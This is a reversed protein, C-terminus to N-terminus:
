EDTKESLEKMHRLNRPMTKVIRGGNRPQDISWQKHKVKRVGGRPPEPPLEESLVIDGRNAFARDVERNVKYQAVRDKLRQLLSMM